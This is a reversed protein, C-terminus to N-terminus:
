NDFRATPGPHGRGTTRHPPLCYAAEAANHDPEIEENLLRLRCILESQFYSAIAIRVPLAKASKMSCGSDCEGDTNESVNQGRQIFTSSTMSWNTDSYRRLAKRRGQNHHSTLKKKSQPKMGTPSWQDKSLLRLGAHVSRMRCM